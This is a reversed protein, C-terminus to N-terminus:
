PALLVLAPTISRYPPISSKVCFRVLLTPAKIEPLPVSLAVVPMMLLPVIFKLPRALTTPSTVLEAVPLIMEEPPPGVVNRSSMVLLPSIRVLAPEKVTKKPAAVPAPVYM